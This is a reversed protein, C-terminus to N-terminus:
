QFGELCHQSLGQRVALLDGGALAFAGSVAHHDHDTVLHILQHRTGLFHQVVEEEQWLYGRLRGM